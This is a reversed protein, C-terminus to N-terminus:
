GWTNTLNSYVSLFMEKAVKPEYCELTVEPLLSLDVGWDNGWPVGPMLQKKEVFLMQGDARKVSGPMEPILNFRACVAKMIRDEIIRYPEGVPTMHKVPRALDAIYAESADHLLGWLADETPCLWAVHMSHESVSYFRSTHGTFRCQHSLAHAIDEIRVMDPHPQLIDFKVGSITEIWADTM